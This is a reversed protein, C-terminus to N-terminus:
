PEHRRDDLELLLKAIACLEAIAERTADRYGGDDPFSREVNELRERLEARIEDRANPSSM